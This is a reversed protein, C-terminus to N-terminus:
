GGPNPFIKWRKSISLEMKELKTIQKNYVLLVKKSFDSPILVVGYTKGSVMLSRAENMNTVTEVIEVYPSANIVGTIERSLASNDEDILAIPIERIVPNSFM